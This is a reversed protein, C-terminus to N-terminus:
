PRSRRTKKEYLSQVLPNPNGTEEIIPKQGTVFHGAKELSRHFGAINEGFLRVTKALMREPGEMHRVHVYQMGIQRCGGDIIRNSGVGAVEQRHIVRTGRLQKQLYIEAAVDYSRPDPKESLHMAVPIGLEVFIPWNRIDNSHICVPMKAKIERLKDVVAPRFDGNSTLTGHVNILLARVSRRLKDLDLDEFLELEAVTRTMAPHLIMKLGTEFADLSVKEGDYPRGASQRLTANFPIIKGADNFPQTITNM